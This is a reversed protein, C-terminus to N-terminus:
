IAGAERLAALETEGLGLREGFITRNHEGLRPAGCRLRWPTRSFMYPAGPMRVEGAAPHDQEVFYNHAKYQPNAAVERPTYVPFCPVHERQAREFIEEKGREAFWGILGAEIADSNAARGPLDKFLENQTWEPNGLVNRTGRWFRDTLPSFSVWGDKCPYVWPVGNKMRTRIRMGYPADAAEHSHIGLTPRVMSVMALWASADVHQGRGTHKRQFLACMAAAAATYGTLWDAQRGAAKLPPQTPPDTVQNIPTEYGVCSMHTAVLDNGRVDRYPSDAGFCTLSVVILKPFCACLTRWGLGLREALAPLNPNLVIDASELMRMLLARARDSHLDLTVGLKSTNLYLHLGGTEPDPVDDRFPGRQRESAGVRPPEVKIVEAGLDAFAKAAMPGAFFPMPDLCPLEVLRLDSLAQPVERSQQRDTM